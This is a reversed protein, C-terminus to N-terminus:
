KMTQNVNETKGLIIWHGKGANHWNWTQCLPLDRKSAGAEPDVFIPSDEMPIKYRCMAELILPYRKGNHELFNM